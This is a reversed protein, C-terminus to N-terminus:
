IWGGSISDDNLRYMFLIKDIDPVGTVGYIYPATSFKYMWKDTQEQILRHRSFNSEWESDGVSPELLLIVIKSVATMLDSPPLGTDPDVLGFDGVVTINQYGVPFVEATNVIMPKKSDKPYRRNYVKIDTMSYAGYTEETVSSVSIIPYPLILEKYGSGDMYLTLSRREFFQNCFTEVFKWADEEASLLTEDSVYDDALGGDRYVHLPIVNM